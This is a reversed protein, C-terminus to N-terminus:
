AHLSQWEPHRKMYARVYSCVPDVKLGEAQAWTLAEHVLAAAIGRGELAPPVVTHTMSLTQGSRRYDAVCCQGDVIALAAHGVVPATAM